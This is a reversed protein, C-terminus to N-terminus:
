SRAKKSLRIVANGRDYIVARIRKSKQLKSRDGKQQSATLRKISFDRKLDDESLGYQRM